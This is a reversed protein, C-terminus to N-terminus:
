FHGAYGGSNLFNGAVLVMYLLNQLKQNAMLEPPSPDYKNQDHGHDYLCPKAIKCNRTSWWNQPSPTMNSIHNDSKPTDICITDLHKSPDMKLEAIWNAMLEQNYLTNVPTYVPDGHSKSYAALLNSFWVLSHAETSCHKSSFM